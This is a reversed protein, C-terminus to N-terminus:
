FEIYCPINYCMGLLFDIIKKKKQNFKYIKGLHGTMESLREDIAVMLNESLAKFNQAFVIVKKESLLARAAILSAAFTKGSSRGANFITFRADSNVFELQPESLKYLKRM